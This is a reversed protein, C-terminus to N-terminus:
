DSTPVSRSDLDEDDDDHESSSDALPKAAPRNLLPLAGMFVMGSAFASFANGALNTLASDSLATCGGIYDAFSWGPFCLLEQGFLCRVYQGGGRTRIRMAAKTLGVITM